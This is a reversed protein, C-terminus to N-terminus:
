RRPELDRLAHGSVRVCFGGTQVVPAVIVDADPFDLPDPNLLTARRTFSKGPRDTGTWGCRTSGDISGSSTVGDSFEVYGGRERIEVQTTGDNGSYVWVTTSQAAMQIM